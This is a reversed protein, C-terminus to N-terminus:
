PATNDVPFEYVLRFRGAAVALDATEVARDGAYYTRQLEQVPSGAPVGLRAAEQPRAPRALVAETARDVTVGIHAMRAVVGRGALPGAEPLAVPTGGTLALPEWSTSVMSREADTRFTYESRMVPSRPDLELREAIERPAPVTTSVCDRTGETGQGAEGPVYPVGGLRGDHWSRIMPRPDSAELVYVGSGVRGHVLGEAMLLRVASIAVNQGVDYTRALAARSPLRSGPPLSGETIRRRLEDAVRLYAPRESM